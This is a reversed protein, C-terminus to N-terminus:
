NKCLNLLCMIVAVFHAIMSKRVRRRWFTILLSEEHLEIKEESEQFNELFYTYFGVISM